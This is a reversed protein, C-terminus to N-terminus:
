ELILSIEAAKLGVKTESQRYRTNQLVINRSAVLLDSCVAYSERLLKWNQEYRFETMECICHINSIQSLIM